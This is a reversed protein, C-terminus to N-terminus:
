LAHPRPFHITYIYQLLPFHAIFLSEHMYIKKTPQMNRSCVIALVLEIGNISSVGKKKKRYILCGRSWGYSGRRAVWM